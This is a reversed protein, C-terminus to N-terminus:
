NTNTPRKFESSWIFPKHFLFFAMAKWPPLNVSMSIFSNLSFTEDKLVLYFTHFSIQEYQCVCFRCFSGHMHTQTHTSLLERKTDKCQRGPVGVIQRSQSHGPQQKEGPEREPSLSLLPISIVCLGLCVGGQLGWLPLATIAENWGQNLPESVVYNGRLCLYDCDTDILLNTYVRASPEGPSALDSAQLSVRM